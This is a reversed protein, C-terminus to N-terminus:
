SGWIGITMGGDVILAQGTVWRADDSALHFADALDDPGGLGLSHFRLLASRVGDPDPQDALYREVIPTETVGQASV